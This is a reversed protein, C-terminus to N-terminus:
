CFAAKIWNMYLGAFEFYLGAAKLKLRCIRFLPRRSKLRGKYFGIQESRRRSEVGAAYLDWSAAYVASFNCFKCSIEYLIDM